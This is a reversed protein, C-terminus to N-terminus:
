NLDAMSLTREFDPQGEVTTSPFHTSAVFDSDMLGRIRYIALLNTTDKAKQYWDSAGFLEGALVLFLSHAVFFIETNRESNVQNAPKHESASLEVKPLRHLCRERFALAQMLSWHTSVEHPILQTACCGSSVEGVSLFLRDTEAHSMKKFGELVFNEAAQSLGQFPDAVYIKMILGGFIFVFM